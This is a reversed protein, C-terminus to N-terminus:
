HRELAAFMKNQALAADSVMNNVLIDKKLGYFAALRASGDAKVEPRAKACRPAQRAAENQKPPPLPQKLKLTKKSMEVMGYGISWFDADQGSRM